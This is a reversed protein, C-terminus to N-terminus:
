LLDDYAGLAVLRRIEAKFKKGHGLRPKYVHVMEHLLTIRVLKYAAQISPDIRIRAADDIWDTIGNADDCPSWLLITDTPLESNFYKRNYHNYYRRLQLHSAAM